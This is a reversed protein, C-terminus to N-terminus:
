IQSLRPAPENLVLWYHLLYDFATRFASFEVPKQVYGNAGLTYATAVDQPDNSSSLVVVPTLKTHPHSRIQRLVEFGSLNPLKLDLLMLNLNAQDDSTKDADEAAAAEAPM